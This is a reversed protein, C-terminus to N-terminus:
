QVSAIHLTSHLHREYKLENVRGLSGKPYINDDGSDCILLSLSLSFCLLPNFYHGFPESCLPASSSRWRGAQGGAWERRQLRSPPTQTPLRLVTARIVVLEGKSCSGRYSYSCTLLFPFTLILKFCFSPYLQM